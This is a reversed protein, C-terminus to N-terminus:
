GLNRPRSEEVGGGDGAHVEGGDANIVKELVVGGIQHMSVRVAMESAELDLPKQGSGTGLLRGLLVAIEKEM